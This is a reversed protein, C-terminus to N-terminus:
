EPFYCSYEHIEKRIYFRVKDKYVRKIHHAVPRHYILYVYVSFRMFM